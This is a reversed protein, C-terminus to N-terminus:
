RAMIALQKLITSALNSNCKGRKALPYKGTSIEVRWILQQLIQGKKGYIYICKYLTWGFGIKNSILARCNMGASGLGQITPFCIKSALLLINSAM